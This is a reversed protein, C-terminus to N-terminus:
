DEEEAKPETGQLAAMFGCTCSCHRRADCRDKHQGYKRLAKELSSVRARADELEATLEAVHLRRGEALEGVDALEGRLEEVKCQAQAGAALQGNYSSCLETNLAKLRAVEAELRQTARLAEFFSERGHEDAKRAREEAERKGREAEDSRLKFRRISDMNSLFVDRVYAVCREPDRVFESGGPTLSELALRYRETEQEAERKGAEAAELEKKIEYLNSYVLNALAQRVTVTESGVTYATQDGAPKNCMWYTEAIGDALERLRSDRDEATKAAWLHPNNPDRVGGSM